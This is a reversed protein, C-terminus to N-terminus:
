FHQDGSRREHLNDSLRRGALVLGVINFKFDTIKELDGLERAFGSDTRREQAIVDMLANFAENWCGNLTNGNEAAKYCRATLQAFNEWKPDRGM